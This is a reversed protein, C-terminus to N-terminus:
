QFYEKNFFTAFVLWLVNFHLYLILDDILGHFAVVTLFVILLNEKLIYLKKLLITVLGIFLISFLLGYKQLIVIYMNDVYNYNNDTVRQGFANLGNGTWSIGQGLISFSYRKISDNSLRIRNELITDLVKYFHNGPTYSISIFYSLLFCLLFSFILPFFIKKKKFTNPYFRHIFGIIILLISSIFTLRSGTQMYIWYNSFFLILATFIDFKKGKLYIVILSINVMYTPAYLAYLFGLFHRTRTDEVQVYNPILGILSSIIIFVFSILTSLLFLKCCKYFPVDRLCYIYIFSIPFVILGGSNKFVILFLILVTIIGVITKASYSILFERSVIILVSFALLWKFISIFYQYYFSTSLISFFVFIFVSSVVLIDEVKVKPLTFLFKM